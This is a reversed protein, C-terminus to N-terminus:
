KGTHKQPKRRSSTPAKQPKKGDFANKLRDRISEQRGVNHVKQGTLDTVYFVDVAKEGFTGVHASAINLNLASIETTLDSLLGPRDLGTVELVTYNESWSNSVLVTTQLTFAKNRANPKTAAGKVEPVPATGRLAEKILCCIREGRRYEDDDEPLERSIYITDLALGDKTTDIHADVINGGAAFCARAITSLLRPHDPALVTIETVGEFAHPEVSTALHEEEKDTKRILNAHNIKSKLDVRLWYAPYHRNLYNDLEEDTWGVLEEALEQKAHDVRQQQSMRGHGGSLITESEYYLTRLLQGKWGNFVNPGVARIDAVTLILLLQLRELSQVKRCFDKITKPDSLDRSQAVTSMELHQEILWAVTDTEAPSLGLRPCIKRAIKAGAISHDEPRGKAVDHLLMAVYLVKRSHVSKILDTALPHSDGGMGREIESLVGVSRILHEDVTYHHYMNFQMMAVVKRFEPLFQGLISSENMARLVTEPDSRSTLVKLFLRNAQENKRFDANILRRSRRVLKLLEPHMDLNTKDILYFVRIVNVPDKEFVDPKAAIIRGNEVLFDKTGKISRRKHKSGPVFSGLFRSISPASKVHQEELAAAFIRTLDGVDKAVLFYHKMFREVARMGPHDMYGLRDAIERQVDFSLREEPRNTLFHLHCRVAWLFDQSKRFRNLVRRSFVGKEVLGLGSPVRYFYKAIWFLTNLDRMGGKGEKVHPEVLYRSAGHREHRDDREALKAAIFDPGTGSVIEKDFRKTLEQFLELDGWVYRAELVATRVTMDERCQKITEDLNRTSHGVKLGMDWLMYLIFEVVQDGWPTQKYPWLFLLDVDSHPAMTGRGYGGVAIISIRESKTPNEVPYVYTVAFEYIVQILMDQVCSLRESCRRGQGDEMLLKEIEKFAAKHTAKLKTLVDSRLKFSNGDGDHKEVLEKLENLLSQPDVLQDVKLEEPTM